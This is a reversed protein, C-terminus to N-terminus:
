VRREIAQRIKGLLRPMDIPKTDYDDCGADLATQQDGTMAHAPQRAFVEEM